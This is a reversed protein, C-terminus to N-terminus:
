DFCILQRVTEGSELRDFGENVEDLTIKESMLKDVPLTGAEFLEIYEPIDRRPVCSGLYSGKITREEAVLNVHQISFRRNPDSLGSSVTTGGRRTLLHRAGHRAGFGM